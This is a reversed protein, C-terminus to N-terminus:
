LEKYKNREEYASRATRIQKIVCACLKSSSTLFIANVRERRMKDQAVEPHYLSYTLGYMGVYVGSSFWLSKICDGPRCGVKFTTQHINQHDALKSFIHDDM